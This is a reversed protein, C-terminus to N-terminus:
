EPGFDRSPASINFIPIGPQPMFMEICNGPGDTFMWPHTVYTNITFSQGMDLDAYHTPTGDFGIWLVSRYGDSTNTFTVTVPVDSRLSVNNALTDCSAWRPDFKQAVTGKGAQTNQQGTNRLTGAGPNYIECDALFNGIARSSGNLPLVYRSGNVQYSIQDMRQLVSWLPDGGDLEIHVSDHDEESQAAHTLGSYVMPGADAFFEVDVRQGDGAGRIDGVLDLAPLGATSGAFCTGHGMSNDTEPFGISIRSTMRGGNFADTYQEYSWVMAFHSDASATGLGTLSVWSVVFLGFFTRIVNPLLKKRSMAVGSTM